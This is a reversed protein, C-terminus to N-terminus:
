HCVHNQAITVGKKVSEVASNDDFYDMITKRRCTSSMCYPVVADVSDKIHDEKQTENSLVTRILQNRDAFRYMIISISPKGDRGARGAEQYYDEFSRPISNHIVFRVDPKDIGMGFASTGCM